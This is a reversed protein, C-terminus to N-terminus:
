LGRLLFEGFSYHRHKLGLRDVHFKSAWPPRIPTEYIKDYLDGFKDMNESGSLFVLDYFADQEDVRGIRYNAYFIEPDLPRFDIKKNFGIDFRSSMVFDYKFNNEEEHEKKLQISKQTSLWRSNSRFILAKYYDVMEKFGVNPKKTHADYVIKDAKTQFVEEFSNFGYDQITVNEFMEQEEILYKKPNYTELIQKEACKSWSHVFIDVDNNRLLSEEYFQKGLSAPISGGVGGSGSKGGLIGCLCLAIKM